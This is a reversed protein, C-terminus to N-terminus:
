GGEVPYRYFRLASEINQELTKFSSPIEKAWREEFEKYFKLANKKSSAYFISRLDDVVEERIKHPCKTMVSRALHVQCRQTEASKFEDTFVAELCKLGDVIGLQM